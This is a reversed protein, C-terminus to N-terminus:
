IGNEMDCNNSECLIFRQGVNQNPRFAFIEDFEETMITIDYDGDDAFFSEPTTFIHVGVELESMLYSAFRLIYDEDSDCLAIEVNKM